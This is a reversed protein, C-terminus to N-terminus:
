IPSHSSKKYRNNKFSSSIIQLCNFNWPTDKWKAAVWLTEQIESLFHILIYKLSLNWVNLDDCYFTYDINKHWNVWHIVAPVFILTAQSGNLHRGFALQNSGLHRRIYDPDALWSKRSLGSMLENEWPYNTRKRM